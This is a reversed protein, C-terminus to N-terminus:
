VHARGIEPEEGAGLAPDFGGVAELAARRMLVDGGFYAVRGPRYLWDLDLLRTYISQGPRSERRHGWVACVEPASLARLAHGVFDPHLETDGDLFLVLAGRAHRWGLNRAKAACPREDALVVCRAGRALALGVSGDTSRSDVYLVEHRLDGWDAAAVSALCRRLREGENRGIVVVSLDPAPGTHLLDDNSRFLM